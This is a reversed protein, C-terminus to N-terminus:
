FSIGPMFAALAFLLAFVVMVAFAALNLWWGTRARRVARDDLDATTLDSRAAFALFAGAASTILAVWVFPTLARVHLGALGIASYVLLIGASVLALYYSIDALRAPSPGRRSSRTGSM